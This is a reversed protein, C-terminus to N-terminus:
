VLVQDSAGADAARRATTVVGDAEEGYSMVTAARELTIHANSHEVAGASKRVDGGAQGETTSSALLLQDTNLRRLLREHWASNRRHRVILAVKTQHMAYVMAASSCAKGLAYCVDVVDSMSSGEGGLDHPVQIGLLRQSRAAEIAEKPFRAARDVAEAHATAVTAVADARGKLDTATTNLADVPAVR